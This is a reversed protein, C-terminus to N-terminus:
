RPETDGSRSYTVHGGLQRAVQGGPRLIVIIWVAQGGPRSKSIKLRTEVLKCRKEDSLGGGRWEFDLITQV